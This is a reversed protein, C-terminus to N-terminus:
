GARSLVVSPRPMRAVAAGLRRFMERRKDQLVVDALEESSMTGQGVAELLLTKCIGAIYRRQLEAVGFGAEELAAVGLWKALAKHYHAQLESEHAVLVDAPLSM